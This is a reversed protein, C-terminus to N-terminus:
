DWQSTTECVQCCLQTLSQSQKHQIVRVTMGVMTGAGAPVTLLDAATVVLENDIKSIQNKESTVAAYARAVDEVLRVDYVLAGDAGLEFEAKKGNFVAQKIREITEADADPAIVVAAM